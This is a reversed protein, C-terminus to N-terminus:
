STIKVVVQSSHSRVTVKSKTEWHYTHPCLNVAFRGSPGLYEFRLHGGLVM